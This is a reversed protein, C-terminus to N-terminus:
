VSEPHLCAALAQLRQSDLANMRKSAHCLGGRLGIFDAELADVAAMDSLQLGGAIGVFFGMQKASQVFAYLTAHVVSEFLSFHKNQTDLMVGQYGMTQCHHIDLLWDASQLREPSFVAVCRAGGRRSDALWPQKQLHWVEAPFKLIDIGLALRESVMAQLLAEGPYADGVTASITLHSSQRRAFRVIDKSVNIPLASLAGQTPDKLDLLTVGAAIVQAAEDVTHVSVLVQM